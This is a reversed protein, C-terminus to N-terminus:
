AATMGIVETRRMIVEYPGDATNVRVLSVEGSGREAAVPVVGDLSDIGTRRRVALEAAQV